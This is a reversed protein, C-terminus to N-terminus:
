LKGTKIPKIKKPEIFKEYLVFRPRRGQEQQDKFTETKNVMCNDLLNNEIFYIKYTGDVDGDNYFDIFYLEDWESKPGFSTPGRSSAGKVQIRKKTKLNYCDFSSNAGGVNGKVKVAGTEMCFLGESLAEPLNIGRNAELQKSLKSLRIWSSFIQKFKKKDNKDFSITQVLFTGEPLKIKEEKIKM